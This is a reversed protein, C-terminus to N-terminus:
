FKRITYDIHENFNLKEDLIVGLDKITEVLELVGGDM